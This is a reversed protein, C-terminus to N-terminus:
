TPTRLLLYGGILGFLIDASWAAMSAPLYNVNGMAGFLGDVVWYALAVGIAVAVGTISGRRGMSLAFPIALVAMVVAILPYSLKHWLAVSLRKTDFGSQRLDRIYRDLQGFNMEQSELDEKKFYDPTAHMEPFSTELFTRYATVNGGKIDREWGNQFRWTRSDEDWAARKAFIRRTLEFTTPEFEFVSLNAFENNDADFFEYYFICGPEGPAAKPGFIWQEEPHLFTQPPRGKIINRLSEQRRNAQPLYFQDFLFLCVALSMAISVIPIVLRYLSIGTAKMAIIESNRNLASFTVLVAILVALPAIQYLMSPTLNLLYEGVIALAIHNRLVDGLLDFFTFVIMLLVFGALVLAFLGVFERVIYEDIIRPFIGRTKTKTTGAGLPQLKGLMEKLPFGNRKARAMLEPSRAIWASIASLIRGGTAMQWLLFTGAAAFLLNASWVAIFAPLKNEHGLEIGTSSLFYYVFVLLITFVFGSSRGGRRSAVGLPVGVLMLVLCAAPFAFRNHLEILFRKGDPGSTHQLLANLPMAYLKTDLRGLHVDSQQGLVLPLDTTTFTSINSQESEDAVTEDRVGDRLRMLLEQTNDTVVTASAATTILPNAPNSVDAMFVQRWNAAGAGSRVDQVYLVYNRFDEYFIRPQIEYSAQSTELSQEMEIIAQNARPALYLSNGLGLLTGGIAVISAVRVFYGIGLGSARMAIIESDSALRSLGLLIGWLVAMPITVKFLNPLTFLFVQAVDTLTSSNRVVVELIHPLQPMFLIFTFLACGILTLSLIEGLIYRTLIRV